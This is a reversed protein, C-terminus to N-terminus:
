RRVKQKVSKLGRRDIRTLIRRVDTGVPLEVSDLAALAREDAFLLKAVREEFVVQGEDELRRAAEIQALESIYEDPTKKVSEAARKIAEAQDADLDVAVSALGKGEKDPM